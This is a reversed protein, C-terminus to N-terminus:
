PECVRTKLSSFRASVGSLRDTGRRTKDAEVTVQGGHERMAPENPRRRRRRRRGWVGWRCKGERGPEGCVGLGVRPGGVRHELDEKVVLSPSAPSLPKSQREDSARIPSLRRASVRGRWAQCLRRWPALITPIHFHGM